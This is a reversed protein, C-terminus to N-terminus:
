YIISTPKTLSVTFYCSRILMSFDQVHKCGDAHTCTSIINTLLTITLKLLYSFGMVTFSIFTFCNKKSLAAKRIVKSVNILLLQLMLLTFTM